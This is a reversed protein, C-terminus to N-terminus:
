NKDIITTNFIHILINKEIETLEINRRSMVLQAVELADSLNYTKFGMAGGWSFSPIYNRPYGSGFINSSVGVVTGTNFMTNIGCKSHDGMILGCFQLGTKIFQQKPYNWMKVEAYNNKLNSNNTDAGLNCWEGIVANGLFGDHAKNSYGQIVSNNLEGGVKSHPGVTTAGYIKAGMKLTSHEGLVFPARIMCGEMIESNAGIYISGQTTNLISAEVTASKEIFIKGKGIVTNTPSLIGSNSTKAILNIDKEIEIGNLTFINWPYKIESVSFKYSITEFSNIPLTDYTVDNPCVLAAIWDTDKVLVQKPKLLKIAEVLDNDPLIGSSILLSMNANCNKYKPQLYEPVINFGNCKLYKEWKEIITFIGVRLDGVARTLTLPLLNERNSIDHLIFSEFQM